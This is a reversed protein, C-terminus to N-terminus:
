YLVMKEPLSSPHVLRVGEEGEDWAVLQVSLTWAVLVMRAVFAINEVSLPLSSKLVNEIQSGLNQVPFTSSPRSSTPTVSPDPSSISATSSRKSRRNRSSLSSFRKNSTMVAEPNYDPHKFAAVADEYSRGVERQTAERVAMLVDQPKMDPVLAMLRELLTIYRGMRATQDGMSDKNAGTAVKGLRERERFLLGANANEYLPGFLQLHPAQRHVKDVLAELRQLLRAPLLGGAAVFRVTKVIPVSALPPLGGSFPLAAIADLLLPTSTATTAPVLKHFNVGRSSPLSTLYRATRAHGLSKQVHLPQGNQLAEFTEASIAISNVAHKDQSFPLSGAAIHKAFLTSYGSGRAPLRAVSRKHQKLSLRYKGDRTPTGHVVIGLAGKEHKTHLSDSKENTSEFHATTLPSGLAVLLAALEEPTVTIGTKGEFYQAHQVDNGWSTHVGVGSGEEGTALGNSSRVLMPSVRRSMRRGLGREMLDMSARPRAPLDSKRANNVKVSQSRRVSRKTTSLFKSIPPAYASRETMSRTRLENAFTDYLTELPLEGPYAHLSNFLASSYVGEDGAKIIGSLTPVYNGKEKKPTFM